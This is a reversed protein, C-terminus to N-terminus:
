GSNKPLSIVFETYEGVESEVTIQGKHEQVVIDYSLSLGLGTGKGTPKTTFFPNFMKERVDQPIGKGNDRIRVEISDGLDKTSLWLTPAYENQAEQRKENTAYCANNIINLFVRSLDQPVVDIKEISEDYDKEIKINFASNQARMGHYALSVYEDLLANIDTEQREGTQGRSHLLMGRVISDARKGHENIRGVNEELDQLIDEINEATDPDLETKHKGIDVRLESILEVSLEAFNNVFNLPNKIEHAIGATLAGLSALKEQVILQQQTRIIEENKEELTQNKEVLEGAQARIEVTREQVTQELMKNHRALSQVRYRHVTYVVGALLGAQLLFAWWTVWLAPRASFTYQLPSRTWLGDDNSALVEFVYERPILFAALNTYRIKYDATEASWSKDYGVLRTKYRVLSENAFSLAAYEVALENNGRRDEAFHVKDLRLAPLTANPRDRDAFYHALGNATGFYVSGDESVGVSGYYWVENGVLGDQRTITNRVTRSKSDIQALGTNTGLWLDGTTPSFDMSFVNSSKLGDERTLFSTMKLSEGELVCLGRPTGVWLVGDQWVLKQIQDSPAGSFQSWVQEFIPTMVEVGFTGRGNGLQFPVERTELDALSSESIPEVSRYLGRDETGVLLRGEGDVAVASFVAVPLGSAEKFVLWRNNVLCFLNLYAPFWVTEITGGGGGASIPLTHCAYITTGRYNALIGEQGSLVIRQRDRSQPLRMNPNLSLCSIGRSTGIWLRGKQDITLGNVWNNRLGHDININEIRGDERMWVVGGDGTAVWVGSLDRGSPQAVVANVAPAPLIPREGTHSVATFNEFAEYNFRLKSVGGTQAFWLNGERDQMFQQTNDSLLGNKRTYILRQSPSAPNLKMVGSGASAVWLADDSEEFISTIDSDLDNNVAVFSPDDASEELRWLLGGRSGWLTGSPDEYLVDVNQDTAGRAKSIIDPRTSDRDFVLLDGGWVGAWVSGNRRAAISRVEADKGDGDVDTSITDALATERDQILYRVIGGGATGVWIRGFRDVAIRNGGRISTDILRTAGIRSTFRVRGGSLYETLPKESVVLGSNSGVWLRGSKDEVVDWLGLDKLGDDTTYLEMTHGDYRVLGSSLIAFWIYGLRDQYVKTVEASPLPNKESDTTYHTFPLEQGPADAPLLLFSIAILSYFLRKM